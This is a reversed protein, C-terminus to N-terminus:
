YFNNFDSDDFDDFDDDIDNINDFDDRLIDGYSDAGNHSSPRGSAKDKNDTEIYKIYESLLEMEIDYRANNTTISLNDNNEEMNIMGIDTQEWIDMVEEDSLKAIYKSIIAEIKSVYKNNVFKSKKLENAMVDRLNQDNAKTDAAIKDIELIATFLDM